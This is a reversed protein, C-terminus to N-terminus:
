FNIGITPVPAAAFARVAALITGDGGLVVLLDPQASRAANEPRFGLSDERAEVTSVRQALWDRVVPLLERVHPKRADALLLVRQVRAPSFVRGVEAAGREDARARSTNTM